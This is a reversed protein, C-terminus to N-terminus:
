SQITRIFGNVFNSAFKTASLIIQLGTNTYSNGKFVSSGVFFVSGKAEYKELDICDLTSSFHNGAFYSFNSYSLVARVFKYRILKQGLEKCIQNYVEECGYSILSQNTDLTGPKPMQLM